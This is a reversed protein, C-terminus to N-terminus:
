RWPGRGPRRGGRLGRFISIATVVLVWKPWFQGGAGTVAWVITAVAFAGGGVAGYRVLENSVVARRAVEVASPPPPPPPPIAPLDSSVDALERHTRAAYTANLRQEFEDSDLRGASYHARLAEATQDRDHDSARLDPSDAM